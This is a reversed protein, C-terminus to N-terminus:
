VLIIDYIQAIAEMLKLNQEELEKNKTLLNMNDMYLKSTAEYSYDIREDFNDNVELQKFEEQLERMRNKKDQKIKELKELLLGKNFWVQFNDRVDQLLNRRNKTIVYVQDYRYDISQTNTLIDISVEKEINDCLIIKIKNNDELKLSIKDPCVSSVVQM